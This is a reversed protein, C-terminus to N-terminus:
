TFSMNTKDHLNTAFKEVNEIKKSEPLLPLDNHLEHLKELYQDDVELFYIEDSQHGKM